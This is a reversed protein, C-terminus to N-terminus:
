ANRQLAGASTDSWLSGSECTVVQRTRVSGLQCIPRRSIARSKQQQHLSFNRPLNLRRTCSRVYNSISRTRGQRQKHPRGASHSCARQLNPVRSSCASCRPLLWSSSRSWWAGVYVCVKSALYALGKMMLLMPRYRQWAQVIICRSCALRISLSGICADHCFRHDNPPQPLLVPSLWRCDDELMTVTSKGPQPLDHLPRDLVTTYPTHTITVHSAKCTRYITGNFKFLLSIRGPTRRAKKGQAGSVGTCGSQVTCKSKSSQGEALCRCM